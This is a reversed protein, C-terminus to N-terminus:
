VLRRMVEDKRVVHGLMISHRGPKQFGMDPRM